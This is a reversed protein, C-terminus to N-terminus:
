PIESPSQKGRRAVLQDQVLPLSGLPLETEITRAKGIQYSRRSKVEALAVCYTAKIDISGSPTCPIQRNFVVTRRNQTIPRLIIDTYDDTLGLGVDHVEELV